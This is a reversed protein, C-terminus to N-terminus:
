GYRFCRIMKCWIGPPNGILLLGKGSIEPSIRGEYFFLNVCNGFM